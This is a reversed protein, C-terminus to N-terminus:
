AASRIALVTCVFRRGHNLAAQRVLILQAVLLGCYVLATGWSPIQVIGLVGLVLLMMLALTAYDRTFLYERHVQKVSPDDDVSKYLKYWLANQERPDTPFAGVERELATVDIRDDRHAYRSFAQCGPLPNRWRLFVIRAKWTAPVLANAVGVLVLGIGAPIATTSEKLLEYWNGAFLADSQVAAFYLVFNAVVIALLAPKNQDKLSVAM